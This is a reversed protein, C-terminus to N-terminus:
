EVAFTTTHNEIENGETDKFSISVTHKGRKLFPPLFLAQKNRAIYRVKETVEEGNLFLRVSAADIEARSWLNVRIVPRDDAVRAGDAPSVSAVAIAPNKVTFRMERTAENGASNAVILTLKHEGDPLSLVSVSTKHLVFDSAMARELPVAVVDGDNLRYHARTLPSHSVIALELPFEIAVAKETPAVVHHFVPPSRDVRFEFAAVDANGGNDTAAITVRQRERNPFPALVVFSVGEASIKSRTTVDEDNFLVKVSDPKVGFPTAFKARIEAPPANIWGVPSVETIFKPAWDFSLRLNMLGFKGKVRCGHCYLWYTTDDPLHLWIEERAEPSTSKGVLESAGDVKGNRNKDAYLYLDLDFDKTPSDSTIRLFREKGVIRFPGLIWGTKKLHDNEDDQFIPVNKFDRSPPKEFMPAIPKVEGEDTDTAPSGQTASPETTEFTADLRHYVRQTEINVFVFFLERRPLLLSMKEAAVIDSSSVISFAKRAKFKEFNAKDLVLLKLSGANELPHPFQHM